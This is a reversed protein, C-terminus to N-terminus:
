TGHSRAHPQIGKKTFFELFKWVEFFTSVRIALPDVVIGRITELNTM